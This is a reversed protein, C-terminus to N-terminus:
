APRNAELRDELVRRPHRAALERLVVIGLTVVAAFVLEILV